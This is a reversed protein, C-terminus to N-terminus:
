NGGVLRGQFDAIKLVAVQINEGSALINFLRCISVTAGDGLFILGFMEVEKQIMGLKSKM